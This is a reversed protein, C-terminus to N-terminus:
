RPSTRPRRDPAQWPERPASELKQQQEPTLMDFAEACGGAMLAAAVAPDLDYIRDVHFSEGDIGLTGTPIKLIRVRM